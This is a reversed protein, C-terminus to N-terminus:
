GLETITFAKSLDAKLIRFGSGHDHTKGKNRGTRYVGIRIDYKIIGAKLSALFKDFTLGSLLIAKNFKFFEKGNEKKCEASIFAINKCKNEVKEKLVDFPYYAEIEELKNEELNKIRMNVRKRKSDVEVTFGFKNKSKNFRDGSFTTHLIKLDAHEGDFYGFRERLLTNTGQPDPSKTFLTIMASSLERASKLEILGDYDASSKNNEIVGLFDEFTKGIGTDHFRNSPIWGMEKIKLFGQKFKELTETEGM